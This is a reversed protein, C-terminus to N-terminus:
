PGVTHIVWRAPLEGAATAVARGARLGRGYHGARLERCAALISPGGRCIPDDHGPRSLLKRSLLTRAPRRNLPSRNWEKGAPHLCRLHEALSLETVRRMSATCM